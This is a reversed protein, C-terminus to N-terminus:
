MAVATQLVIAQTSCLPLQLVKNGQNLKLHCVVTVRVSSDLVLKINASQVYYLQRCLIKVDYQLLSYM